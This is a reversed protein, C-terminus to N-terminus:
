PEDLTAALSISVAAVILFFVLSATLAITKGVSLRTKELRAIDAYLFRRGDKAVLAEPQVDAVVFEADVFRTIVRVHDGEKLETFVAATPRTPDSGPLQIPVRNHCGALMLASLVVATARAGVSRAAVTPIGSM